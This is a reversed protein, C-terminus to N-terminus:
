NDTLIHEDYEIELYLKHRAEEQALAAFTSKIRADDAYQALQTYLWFSAKEQKMALTLADQYNMDPSFEVDEVQEALKLDPVKRVDPLPRKGQKVAMLTSKHEAEQDAFETFVDKMHSKTTGRALDLYFRHAKEEKAIAFDLIEDVSNFRDM